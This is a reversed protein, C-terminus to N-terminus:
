AGEELFRSGGRNGVIVDREIYNDHASISRFSPWM